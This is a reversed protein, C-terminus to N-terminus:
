TRQAPRPPRRETWPVRQEVQRSVQLVLDDQWPGGVLQVGVPLGTAEDHGVPLSIAPLGNMNFISTFTVMQLVTPSTDSPADTIEQWIQGAPPPLIPMTPTVLVDFDRGWQANVQRTWRQLDGVARVYRLSDVAQGYRRNEQNNAQVRDWDVDYGGLGANVVHVFGAIFAEVHPDFVHDVVEHGADALADVTRDVAAVCAPDVEGGLPSSRVVAVRLRGPEDTVTEAYPRAPPPANWWALPDHQAMVDLAAATDGVTRSVVGEVAAGEWEVVAGPIRGRSVKLGVLGTCSAPIRLSGGGDGGHAIAYMGGAVAASAGGSSGGSTHELNWPNRTIGFRENETATVTGFEPTNSRGCLVFGADVLRQVVPDTEAAPEDGAGASGFSCPWGEVTSLDKVPIPVGLFPPLDGGAALREEAARARARADDEDLAIIAHLAPNREDVAALTAELVETPSVERRRIAAALDTASATDLDLDLDM